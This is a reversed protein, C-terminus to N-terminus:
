VAQLHNIIDSYSEKKGFLASTGLVFGDAGMEWLDKIMEPSCAGDIMIELPMEKKLAVLNEVKNKVPKLFKQGAFGPNVTMVLISETYYLIDKISELSTGPNISIGPVAGLKKIELLTRVPHVDAEPHIYIVKAGLAIFREVYNIPNKIMLHVEVPIQAIQCILETDQMGMGFNPVYSGDMIDIHFRTAGAKELRNIEEKLCGYDACMMSPSLIKLM